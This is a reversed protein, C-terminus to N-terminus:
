SERLAKMLETNEEHRKVAIRYFGHGLGVYNECNRILFGKKLLPEFIERETEFMIYNAVGPYVRFGLDSLGRELYSREERIVEVARRLYIDPTKLAAVGAAQALVSVSWEVQLEKMRDLLSRNFSFFYGLRVGPIAYRKTFADVVSIYSDNNRQFCGDCLPYGADNILYGDDGAEEETALGTFCRDLLLYIGKENCLDIIRKLLGAEICNGVPNSPSCLIAMDPSVDDLFSLYEESLAFNEEKKLYHWVIEAGAVRGAKSYGSFSPATLLFKKPRIAEATLQILESAGNGCLIHDADIGYRDSLAARLSGCGMDPYNGVLAIARRLEEAVNEPVGLPNINVSFDYIIKNDSHYIEGGHLMM